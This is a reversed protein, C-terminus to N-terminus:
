PKIVFKVLAPVAKALLAVALAIAATIVYKQGASYTDTNGAASLIKIAGLIVFVVAAVVLGTFIWNIVYYVTGVVCCLGCPISEDTMDCSIGLSDDCESIGTTARIACETPLTDLAYAGAAGFLLIALVLGTTFEKKM